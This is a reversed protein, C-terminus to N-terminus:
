FGYSLVRLEFGHSAGEGQYRRRRRVVKQAAPISCFYTLFHSLSFTLFRFIRMWARKNCQNVKKSELMRVKKSHAQAHLRALAVRRHRANRAESRFAVQVEGASFAIKSLHPKSNFFLLVV